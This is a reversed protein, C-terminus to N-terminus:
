DSADLERHRVLAAGFDAFRQALQEVMYVSRHQGGTCGIAVTLYSRPDAEFGPLWRRLFSEIQSLLEQTEPQARLYDIVPADSGTLARLERIYYPNPLMRVDFVFDADLPVGFKFAFSEFVLTLAAPRAQVLRRVWSRLDAPRLQSTDVVSSVERLEGLMLRELEIAEVLATQNDSALPNALPHPRRTESFRRVLADTAADLFLARVLIGDARMEEMLPVLPSLSRAARVDVAVAVRHTGRDHELRVFERMLEPPLNDVCFYGADELAHLAVSKGSGSIGTVLVVERLAAPAPAPVGPTSM